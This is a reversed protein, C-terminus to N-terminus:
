SRDKEDPGLRYAGSPKREHRKDNDEDELASLLGRSELAEAAEDLKDIAAAIIGSLEDRNQKCAFERATTLNRAAARINDLAVDSTVLIANRKPTM